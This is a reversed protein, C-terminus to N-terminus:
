SNGRPSGFGKTAIKKTLALTKNCLLHRKRRGHEPLDVLQKFGNRLKVYEFTDTIRMSTAVLHTSHSM